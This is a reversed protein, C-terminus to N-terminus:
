HFSSADLQKLYYALKEITHRLDRIYVLAGDCCVDLGIPLSVLTTSRSGRRYGTRPREADALTDILFNRRSESQNRCEDHNRYNCFSIKVNLKGNNNIEAYLPGQRWGLHLITDPRSGCPFCTPEIDIEDCSGVSWEELKERLQGLLTINWINWVSRYCSIDERVNRRVVDRRKLERELSDAWDSQLIRVYLFFSYFM